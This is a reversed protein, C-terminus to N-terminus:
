EVLGQRLLRNAEVLLRPLSGALREGSNGFRQTITMGKRGYRSAQKRRLVSTELGLREGGHRATM